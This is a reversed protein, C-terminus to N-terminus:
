PCLRQWLPWREIRTNLQEEIQYAWEEHYGEALEALEWLVVHWLEHVATQRLYWDPKDALNLTDYKITATYYLVNADSEGVWGETDASDIGAFDTAIIWHGMQMEDAYCRTYHEMRKAVGGQLALLLLLVLSHPM